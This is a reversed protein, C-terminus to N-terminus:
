EAKYRKLENCIISMGVLYAEFGATVLLLTSATARRTVYCLRPNVSM